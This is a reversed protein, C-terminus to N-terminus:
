RLRRNDLGSEKVEINDIVIHSGVLYFGVDGDCTQMINKIFNARVQTLVENPLIAKEVWRPDFMKTM